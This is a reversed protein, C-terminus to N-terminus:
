ICSIINCSLIFVLLQIECIIYIFTADNNVFTIGKNPFSNDTIRQKM